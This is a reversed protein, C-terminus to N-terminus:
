QLLMDKVFQFYALQHLHNDSVMFVICQQGTILGLILQIDGAVQERNRWILDCINLFEYFECNM